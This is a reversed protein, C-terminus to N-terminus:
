HICGFSQSYKKEEMDTLTMFEGEVEMLEESVHQVKRLHRVFKEQLHSVALPFSM